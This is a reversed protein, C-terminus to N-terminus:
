NSSVTEQVIKKMLIHFAEEVNQGTKASIELFGFCNKFEELLSEVYGNIMEREHSEILDAKTGLLLIPISDNEELMKTWQEFHDLTSLRTMDFLFFAGKVGKILTPFIFRFREQGSLDWLSLEVSFKCDEDNLDLDKCFFEIGKTIESNEDFEDNIYKNLFSTKGVGGDGAILIKLGRTKISLDTM